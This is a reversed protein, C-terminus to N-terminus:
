YLSCGSRPPQFYSGSCPFPARGPAPMRGNMVRKDISIICFGRGLHVSLKIVRWSKTSKHCTIGKPWLEWSLNRNGQGLSLNEWSTMEHWRGRFGFKEHCSLLKMLIMPTLLYNWHPCLGSFTTLPAKVLTPCNKRPNSPDFFQRLNKGIRYPNTVM